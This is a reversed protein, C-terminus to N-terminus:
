VCCLMASIHANSVPSSLLSDQHFQCWFTSAPWQQVQVILSTQSVRQKMATTLLGPLQLGETQWHLIVYTRLSHTVFNYQNCTASFTASSNARESPRSTLSSSSRSNCSGNKSGSSPYLQSTTRPTGWPKASNRAGRWCAPRHLSLVCGVDLPNHVIYMVWSGLGPTLQLKTEVGNMWKTTQRVVPGFGRGICARWMTRYLAEEKLHSYGRREKLDDLLKRHRRGGWRGTVQIGGKIKGETVQQLLCNRHLIHGIWNAKWKSIELYYKKM